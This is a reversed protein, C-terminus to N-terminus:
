SAYVSQQGRVKTRPLYFSRNDFIRKVALGLGGELTARSGLVSAEIRPPLPTCRLFAGRIEEVLEERIGISGGLIILQPDLVSAIAALAPALLRATETITVRAAEDGRELAAFIDRVTACPRGGLGEYRRVMAVSGANYELTGLLFGRSDYPDGGIPMYSIEGAAGSSGKLLQGNAVIGMGIGTGLAIFAFDTLEAGHGRWQEGMAALNVDNEIIVAGGLRESLLRQVDISAFGPINPAAALSGTEVHLVGPTGLVLLRLDAPDIAHARALRQATGVIQEIIFTGGREDTPQMEEAVINGLVDAVAIHVKTGGLDVSVIFAVGNNIEYTIATRGVNGATRGRERLWGDDELERVVDSITQKSLGTVDALRARSITGSKLVTDMVMDM